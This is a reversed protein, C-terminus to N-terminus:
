VSKDNKLFTALKEALQITLNKRSYKGTEISDDRSSKEEYQNSAFFHDKLYTKIEETQSDCVIRGGKTERLIGAVDGDIDGIGLIPTKAALYEFLKGPIHGKSNDSQNLLLLLLSSESYQELVKNHSLYGLYNLRQGLLPKQEIENLVQQDISGVIRLEFRTAFEKNSQCMDELIDWLFSPNRLSTILGTYTLIFKDTEVKKYNKFDDEDYGNTIVEVNKAGLSILEEKWNNSVAIITDAKTLVKRELSRQRNMALKTLKFIDLYDITSWPDRFDAVWKLHFKKKLKLGILHVSHPPGTTVVCDPNISEIKKSLDKFVSRVWFVRPDPILLNGRLWLSLKEIFGKKRDDFLFGTNVKEERKKGTIVKFLHYPEWIPVKIVEIGEPIDKSLSDDILPYEANEPAVVIPQWGFEPLYKVFKLWRQVGGGGAPPWYYTIILVKKVHEKQM